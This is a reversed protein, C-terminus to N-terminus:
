LTTVSSCNLSLPDNDGAIIIGASNNGSTMTPGATVAIPGTAAVDIGPSNDGATTTPGVVVTVPDEGGRVVTGPSNDGGTMTPGATVAIPGTAAVDTGPSNDGETTTPGVVVTVPDDGGRVVTGPSNDGGTDVSDTQSNIVCTGPGIAACLMPNVILSVGPSGDGETTIIGLDTTIDGIANILVAGSNDGRTTVQNATLGVDCAGAGVIVCAIPSSAIDIGTAGDGNTELINVSGTTDGAARILLGTAGDGQTTLTGVTFSTDCAGAGLILCVNPDSALDLGIARDGNTQLVGVNATIDGAARVLAGPSDDGITTLNGVTFATDCAGVGLMICATPDASLDLGAAQDGGTRLVGINVTTDGAAAILAGIGGFGETTVSDAAATVDCGGAGLLICAAPDSAIDIAIADTGNTRLARATLNIDGTGRLLTASSLDGNTQIADVDATIPGSTSLIQLGQSNIGQTTLTGLDANVSAGTLNV